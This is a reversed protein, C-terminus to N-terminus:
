LKGKLSAEARALDEPTDVGITTLNTTVVRIRIGNELARLQELKESNELKGPPLAVFRDLIDRRYAYIGWHLFCGPDTGGRRVFPIEARSFYLANGDAGFVVKVNNETMKERCAPIAVTAMELSRDSRMLRILEDVLETPILPEDGQINIVTEVGSFSKVAEAIRDTGSPHDPSTMIARGGFSEVAAAIREDDTAVAGADACSAVAKEWVHRIMPKGALLALPKGPFRTSAYRAPIIVVAPTDKMQEIREM